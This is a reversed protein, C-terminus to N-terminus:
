GPRGAGLRARALPILEDLHGCITCRYTHVRGDRGGTVIRRSTSDFAASLLIDEHGQFLYILEGTSADWLGPKGPGATVIWRGDPSFRADSVIGFHAHLKRVAAGSRADWMIPVHDRSATVVHAGDPSFRASTVIDRHGRLVLERGNPRRIVATKGAIRLTSGDPAREVGPQEAQREAREDGDASLVHLRGDETVAEFGDGAFGVQKVPKGLARVLRLPPQKISDWVRVTGEVGATVVRRDGPLFAAADVEDAHGRLTVITEGNEARWVRATGDRGTTAVFSGNASFEVDNVFNEHGPLVSVLEGSGVRWVRATGDTSATALLTARPSFAIDRVHGRHGRILGRQEGTSVRWLRVTGDKGGVALTRAAPGFRLSTVASPQELVHRGEGNLTNVIVAKRSGDSIALLTRQPGLAAHSITKPATISAVLKGSEVDRVPLRGAPIRVRREVRGTAPDFITVTRGSVAVAGDSRLELLRGPLPRRAIEALDSDFVTIATPSAAAIVGDAGRALAAVPSDVNARLRVRSDLLARRLVAETRESPELEAARLALRLSREPDVTLQSLASAALERAEASRAQDRAESRQALAWVALALTAALAVLSAAAVLALKRHRRRAAARERELAREAEHRARWALIAPALVDHFIEYRPPGGARGPVRRLIRAADLGALVPELRAPDEEAYRALDEVAHAIKTGSPTVLYNFLEAVLDRSGADRRALARELHEEVIRDAGGLEALTAARLLDSGREREVDWLRELVLQLYPAEVRRAQRDDLIAKGTLGREIRGAGVQELVAEVLEPEATVAVGGLEGYVRLPGEIATRAAARTLHDLRLVNGFLGPVRRKFTDLDALADDRVGLLVHVRLDPRTLVEELEDALPGGDRGHYLVYEEMQDLVLYLEGLELAREALADPLPVDTRAGAAAAVVGVPDDRWRDVIAVCASDAGAAGAPVLARLRRAVGARLLSTKGVGSPGYLVTLRSAMMNAAVLESERERGFFLLRDYESDGFAALGMFPSRPLTM